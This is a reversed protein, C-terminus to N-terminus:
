RRILFFHRASSAPKREDIISGLAEELFSTAILAEKMDLLQQQHNNYHEMMSFVLITTAVFFIIMIDCPKSVHRFHPICPLRRRAGLFWWSLCLVSSLQVFISSSIGKKKKMYPIKKETFNVGSFVNSCLALSSFDFPAGRQAALQM